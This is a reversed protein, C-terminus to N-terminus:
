ELEFHSVPGSGILRESEDGERLEYAKLWSGRVELRLKCPPSMLEEISVKPSPSILEETSITAM